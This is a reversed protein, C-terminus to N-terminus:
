KFANAYSTIIIGVIKRKFSSRSDRHNGVCSIINTYAQFTAGQM